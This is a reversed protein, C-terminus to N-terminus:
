DVPLFTLATKRLLEIKKQRLFGIFNLSNLNCANHLYDKLVTWWVALCECKALLRMLFSYGHFTCLHFAVFLSVIRAFHGFSVMKGNKTVEICSVSEKQNCPNSHSEWIDWILVLKQWVDKNRQWMNLDGYDYLTIPKHASQQHLMNHTSNKNQHM